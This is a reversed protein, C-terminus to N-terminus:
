KLIEKCNITLGSKQYDEWTLGFYEIQKECAYCNPNYLFKIKEPILYENVLDVSMNKPQTTGYGIIEGYYDAWAPTGKILECLRRAEKKDEIKPQIAFNYILLIIIAVALVITGTKWKNQKKQEM